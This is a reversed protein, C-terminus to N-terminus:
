FHKLYQKNIRTLQMSHLATLFRGLISGSRGHLQQAKGKNKRLVRNCHSDKSLSVNIINGNPSVGFGGRLMRPVYLEQDESETPFLQHAKKCVGICTLVSKHFYVTSQCVLLCFQQILEWRSGDLDECKALTSISTQPCVDLKTLSGGKKSGIEREASTTTHVHQHNM